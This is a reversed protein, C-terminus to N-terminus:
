LRHCPERCGCPRTLAVAILVVAFTVAVRAGAPPLLIALLPLLSGLVFAGASAAAAHWPNILEHPNIGLEVDFHAAFTDKATLEEAVRQATESSVGKARYM